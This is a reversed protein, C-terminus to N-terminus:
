WSGSNDEIGKQDDLEIEIENLGKFASVIVGDRNQDTGDSFSFGPQRDRSIRIVDNIQSDFFRNKTKFM